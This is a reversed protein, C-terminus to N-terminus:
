DMATVRYIEEIPTVGSLAKNLGDSRLTILHGGKIAYEKIQELPVEKIFMSKIHEDVKLAELLATRGKYGTNSCESCGKGYYFKQGAEFEMGLDKLIEKSVNKVEEKCNSCIKRCLRQACILILSSAVLYREIGMDVLRAFASVADNTHLTSFILQGILSAKIAIDATETDRIEGIMITDPSQRLIGRLASAFTLEIEPRVQIQTLGEVQYEVPEEVTVIHRAPTNIKSLVSYLTTSKGSGTPGTILIMGHDKKIAEMLLKLPQQSFGLEELKVVTSARDLIRLVFKEGFITPLSSVRFDVEKDLASLHFRGDQPLYFKTIDLNALIKIRASIGRSSKIPLSHADYLIGDVRYRVRLDEENPELHIDSARKEIAENLVLDVAKIIPQKKSEEILDSSELEEPKEVNVVELSDRSELIEPLTQTKTYYTKIFSAIFKEKTLVQKIECGVSIRLNDLIFIDLPDAVAILLSDGTSYIPFINYKRAIDESLLNVIGPDIKLKSIDIFPIFLYYSVVCLLEDESIFGDEVLLNKLAKGTKKQLTLARYLEEESLCQCDILIKTLNIKSSAM